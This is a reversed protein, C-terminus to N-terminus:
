LDLITKDEPVFLRGTYYERGEALYLAQRNEGHDEETHWLVLNPVNLSQAIM